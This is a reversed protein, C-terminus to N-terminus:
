QIWWTTVQRGSIECKRRKGRKIEEHNALNHLRRWVIKHAVKGEKSIERASGGNCKKVAELVMDCHKEKLGSETIEEDAEKSSEQDERYDASFDRKYELV